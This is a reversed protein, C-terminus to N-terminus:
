MPHLVEERLHEAITVQVLLLDHVLVAQRDEVQLHEAITAQVLLLDRVLVVLRDEARQLEM